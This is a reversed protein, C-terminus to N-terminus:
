SPRTLESRQILHFMGNDDEGMLSVADIVLPASILPALVPDLITRLARAKAKPLKGSLTLHFRFAEMVYPYGWRILLADQAASLAGARRHKLEADNLPARFHDFGRVTAAALADLKATDAGPVLALFRGLQALELHGLNVANWGACFDALAKRLQTETAGDALRFPPKLTGHFGYKRPTETIEDWPLPLAGIDPPLLPQGTLV